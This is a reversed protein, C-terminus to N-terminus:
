SITCSKPPSSPTQAAPTPPPPANPTPQPPPAHPTPPPPAPRLPRTPPPQLQPTSPVPPALPPQINSNKIAPPLNPQIPTYGCAGTVRYKIIYAPYSNENCYTMYVECNYALGNVSDYKVPFSKMPPMKLTNDPESFFSDGTLVKALMMENYGHVNDYYAYTDSYQANEAFYNAVGWMGKRSYRMDFGDESECISKAVTQRSGHFLEKENVSGNNKEHMRCKTQSYKNWTWRNQVRQIHLVQHGEMTKMFKNQVLVFERSTTSLLVFKCQEGDEMPEWEKPYHNNISPKPGAPNYSIIVGQLETLANQVLSEKGEVQLVQPLTAGQEIVECKVSSHKRAVIELKRQLVSPLPTPLPIDKSSLQEKLQDQIHIKAIPMNQSPGKLNIIVENDRLFVLHSANESKVDRTIMRSFNSFINVQKMANFDFCYRQLGISLPRSTEGLQYMSEIQISDELRYSSFHGFDDCYKWVVSQESAIRADKIVERKYFSSLNRQFMSNFDICYHVHDIDLNCKSYPDSRYAQNLLDTDKKSYPVFAGSDDRWSWVFEESHSALALPVPNRPVSNSIVVNKLVEIYLCAQQKSGVVISVTHITSIPSLSKLSTILPQVMQSSIEPFSISGMRKESAISLSNTIVLPNFSGSYNFNHKPYIIHIIYSCPLKGSELIGADGLKSLKQSNCLSGCIDAQFFQKHLNPFEIPYINEAMTAGTPIVIADTKQANLSGVVIKVTVVHDQSVRLFAQSITTDDPQEDSVLSFSSSVMFRHILNKKWEAIKKASCVPNYSSSFVVQSYAIEKENEMLCKFYQSVNEVMEKVAQPRGEVCYGKYQGNKEVTLKIGAISKQKQLHATKVMLCGVSEDKFNIRQKIYIELWPSLEDVVNGKDVLEAKQPICKADAQKASPTFGEMLRERPLQVNVIAAAESHLPACKTKRKPGVCEVQGLESSPSKCKGSIHEVKSSSTNSVVPYIESSPADSTRWYRVQFMKHGQLKQVVIKAESHTCFTIKGYHTNKEKYVVIEKEKIDTDCQYLLKKLVPEDLIDRKTNWVRVYLSQQNPCGSRRNRKRRPPNSHATSSASM